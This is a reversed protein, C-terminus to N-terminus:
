DLVISTSNQQLLSLFEDRTREELSAQYFAQLKNRVSVVNEMQKTNLLTLSSRFQKRIRRRVNM